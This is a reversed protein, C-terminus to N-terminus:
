HAGQAISLEVPRDPNRELAEIAERLTKLSVALVIRQLGAREFGALALPADFQVAGGPNISIKMPMELVQLTIPERSALLKEWMERTDQASPNDDDPM